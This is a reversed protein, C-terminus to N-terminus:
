GKFINLIDDLFIPKSKFGCFKNGFEKTAFKEAAETEGYQSIILIKPLPEIKAEVLWPLLLLGTRNAAIVENKFKPALQEAAGLIEDPTKWSGMNQDLLILDFKEDSNLLKVAPRLYEAIKYTFVEKKKDLDSILRDISLANDDIILINKVNSM